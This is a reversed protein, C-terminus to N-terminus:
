IKRIDNYFLSILIFASLASIVMLISLHTELKSNSLERNNNTNSIKGPVKKEIIKELEFLSLLENSSNIVELKGESNIRHKAEVEKQITYYYDQPSRYKINNLSYEEGQAITVTMFNNFGYDLLSVTDNYAIPQSSAALTVAILNLDGKSATTVLTHGSQDVYGTKGGTVGNYPRERMLKHHSFLTTEWKQDKWELEKTGFIERFVKNKIAYKTIKALDEATTVHNENFLGHPNTFNTNEVGIEESLYSNLNKSFKEISGDIHEAIAIGADNGSNILLGQILKKLTITEGEELYIRTGEAETANKSVTTIENLDAKDIAYIATAIKTLSAPYMKTQANKQFLIEGSDQEILIAAESQIDISNEFHTSSLAQMPLFINSSMILITIILLKKM